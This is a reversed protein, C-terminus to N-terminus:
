YYKELLNFIYQLGTGKISEIKDLSDSIKTTDIKLSNGKEVVQFRAKKNLFLEIQKIIDSVLFSERFAVNITQNRVDSKILNEVILKLDDKDILNREAHKWLPIEVDHCIADVLYNLITAANGQPGVVNSVRFILNAKTHEKIYTEIEIKHKVYPRHAVSADYISCTSFYILLANPHKKITAELLATERQFELVNTETSNSVGAAFIIVDKNTKYNSFAKAM